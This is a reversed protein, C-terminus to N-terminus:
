KKCGKGPEGLAARLLEAVRPGKEGLELAERQKESLLLLQISDDGLIQCVPPVLEAPLRWRHRSEAMWARILASAVNLGYKEKLQATIDEPKLNQARM